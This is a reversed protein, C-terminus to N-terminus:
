GSSGIHFETGRWLPPVSSDTSRFPSFQIILSEMTQTSKELYQPQWITSSSTPSAHLVCLLCFLANATETPSMVLYFWKLSRPTSPLVINFCWILSIPTLTNCPNIHRVSKFLTRETLGPFTSVPASDADWPSGHWTLYTTQWHTPETKLYSVPRNFTKTGRTPEPSCVKLRFQGVDHGIARRLVIATHWRVSTFPNCLLQLRGTVPLVSADSSFKSNLLLGRPPAEHYFAKRNSLETIVSKQRYVPLRTHTASFCCNVLSRLIHSTM